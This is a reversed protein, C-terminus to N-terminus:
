DKDAAMGEPNGNKRNYKRDMLAYIGSILLAVVGAAAFLIIRQLPQVKFDFLTIKFCMLMCLVLGYIRLKRDAQRFGMAISFLGVLMMLISSTIREGFRTVLVMYTLFGSITLRRWGAAVRFIGPQFTFLIIGLGLVTLIFYIMVSDFKQFFGLGLYCATELVLVTINFGAIGKGAFGKVYNFLLTALWMVAIILPLMLENDVVLAIYLVLTGTILLEYYTQWHNILAIGLLLAVLLVYGYACDHYNLASLAVVATLIADLVWLPKKRYAFPKCLALLVTLIITISLRETSDNLFIFLASGAVYYPQIWRLYGKKSTLFFFLVGMAAIAALVGLHVWIKIDSYPGHCWDFFGVACRYYASATLLFAGIGFAICIGRMQGRNEAPMRWVTLEMLFLSLVLFGIVYLARLEMVEEPPITSIAFIWAFVAAGAMQGIAIGYAWKKVPLLIGLLQVILIMTMYILLEMDGAMHLTDMTLFSVMCAGICIIRLIGADKNRSVLLVAVTIVTTILITVLSNFNHLYLFNVMTTVYLSAVGLSSFIMAIAQNRKRVVFEAAGWVLLGLVYLGLEKVLSSMYNIGLLIMAALVFLVGITGFVNIGITFEHNKRQGPEVHSQPGPPPPTQQWITGASFTGYTNAAPNGILELSASASMSGAPEASTPATAAPEASTSAAGVPGASATEVASMRQQYIQFNRELEVEILDLQYKEQILRHDLKVLYESFFGDRSEAKLQGVREKIREYIGQQEM